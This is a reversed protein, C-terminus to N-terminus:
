LNDLDLISERNRLTFNYGSDIETDDEGSIFLWEKHYTKDIEDIALRPSNKDYNVECKTIDIKDSNITGNEDIYRYKYEGDNKVLYYSTNKIAVLRLTYSIKSESSTYVKKSYSEFGIGLFSSILTIIFTLWFM